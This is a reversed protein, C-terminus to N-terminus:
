DHTARVDSDMWHEGEGYRNKVVYRLGKQKIVTIGTEENRWRMRTKAKTQWDEDM